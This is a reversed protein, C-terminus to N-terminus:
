VPKRPVIDMGLLAKETNSLDGIMRRMPEPVRRVLTPIAVIQDTHARDPEKMLDVIELSYRGSLHDECIRKLNSFAALSKPSQGAVYLVLTYQAEAEEHESPRM